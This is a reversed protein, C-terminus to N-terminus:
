RAKPLRAYLRFRNPKIGQNLQYIIDLLALLFCILGILPLSLHAAQKVSSSSPDEAISHSIQSFHIQPSHRSRDGPSYLNNVLIICDRVHEQDHGAQFTLGGGGWELSCAIIFLSADTISLEKFDKLSSRLCSNAV